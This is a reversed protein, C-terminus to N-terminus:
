KDYKGDIIKQFNTSNVVWELDPRWTRGMSEFGTALRTDSAIYAFFSDWWELGKELTKYGEGSYASPKSAQIWRQKLNAQRSGEWSRPQALHPLHKKWLQLIQQQPCPPFTTESLFISPEQNTTIPNHNNTLQEDSSCGDLVQQADTSSKNKRREASAKGANSKKAIHEHYEAIEADCRTHIWVNNDLKFFARLLLHTDQTSLGIKMALVEIDNQLPKESDYYMWILRLYGITQSDTLRSTAKIFDGIHHQYYFM